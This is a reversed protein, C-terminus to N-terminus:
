CLLMGSYKNARVNSGAKLSFTRFVSVDEIRESGEAGSLGDM